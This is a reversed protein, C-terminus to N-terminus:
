DSTSTCSRTRATCSSCTSATRMRAACCGDTWLPRRLPSGARPAAELGLGPYGAEADSAAPGVDVVDHGAKALHEALYAKLEFGAHDSALYVRVVRMTGAPM